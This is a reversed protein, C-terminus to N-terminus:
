CSSFWCSASDVWDSATGTISDWWSGSSSSSGDTSGTSTGPDIGTSTGSGSMAASIWDLHSQVKVYFGYSARCDEPGWSTLGMLVDGTQTPLVIPGGSDGQCTYGDTGGACFNDTFGQVPCQAQDGDAFTTLATYRLVNSAQGTEDIGYGAAWVSSGAPLQTQADPLAVTSVSSTQALQVLGIDYGPQTRPGENDAYSEHVYITAAQYWTGSIWVSMQAPQADSGEYTLCHAATVVWDAAILSGTCTAAQGGGMDWELYSAYPFMENGTDVTGDIIRTELVEDDAYTSNSRPAAVTVWGDVHPANLLPSPSGAFASAPLAFVNDAAQKDLLRRSAPALFDRGQAGPLAAGAVLSLLLWAAIM